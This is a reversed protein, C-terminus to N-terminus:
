PSGVAFVRVDIAVSVIAVAAIVHVPVVVVVIEAFTEPATIFIAIIASILIIADGISVRGDQFGNQHLDEIQL